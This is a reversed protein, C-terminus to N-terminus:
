RSLEQDDANVNRRFNKKLSLYFCISVEGNPLLHREPSPVFFDNTNSNDPIFFVPEQNSTHPIEIVSDTLGNSNPIEDKFPM